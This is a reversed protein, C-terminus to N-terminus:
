NVVILFNNECKTEMFHLIIFYTKSSFYFNLLTAPIVFSILNATLRSMYMYIVYYAFMIIYM